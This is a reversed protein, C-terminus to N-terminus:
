KSDVVETEITDSTLNQAVNKEETRNVTGINIIKNISSRYLIAQQKFILVNDGNEAKEFFPQTQKLVAVDAVTAVQPTDEPLEILLGVKSIIAQSQADALKQQYAPDKLKYLTYSSYVAVSLVVVFIFLIGLWFLKKKSFRLRPQVIEGDVEKVTKQKKISSLVQEQM